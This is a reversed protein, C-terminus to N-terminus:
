GNNLARMPSIRAARWSPLLCAGLSAVALVTAAGALVRLDIQPVQYLVAQMARGALWAGALGLAGGTLIHAIPWSDDGDDAGESAYGCKKHGCSKINADLQHAVNAQIVIEDHQGHYSM